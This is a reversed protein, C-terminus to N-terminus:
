VWGRSSASCHSAIRVTITCCPAMEEGERAGACQGGRSVWQERHRLPLGARPNLPPTFWSCRRRFRTACSSPRAHAPLRPLFESDGRAARDSHAARFGSPRACSAPTIGCRAPQLLDQRIVWIPRAPRARGNARSRCASRRARPRCRRGARRVERERPVRRSTDRATRAMCGPAVPRRHRQPAAREDAGSIPMCGAAPLTLRRCRIPERTIDVGHTLCREYITPFRARIFDPTMASLDLLAQPVGSAALGPHHGRAVVDRSALSGRPDVADLFREGRANLLVPGRRAAGRDRSLPPM